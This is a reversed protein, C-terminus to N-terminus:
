PQLRCWCGVCNVDFCLSIKEDKKIIQFKRELTEFVFHFVVWLAFYKLFRLRERPDFVSVFLPTAWYPKIEIVTPRQGVTTFWYFMQRFPLIKVRQRILDQREPLISNAALGCTL